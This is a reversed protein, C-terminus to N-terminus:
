VSLIKEGRGIGSVGTRAVELISLKGIARGFQRRRKVYDVTIDLAAKMAGASEVALAVRWWDRLRAASGAGLSEGATAEPALWCPYKVWAVGLKSLWRALDRPSGAPNRAAVQTTPRAVARAERAILETMAATSNPNIFVLQM